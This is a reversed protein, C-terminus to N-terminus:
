PEKPPYPVAGEIGLMQGITVFEFGRARYGKIIAPLAAATTDPFTHMLVISGRGGGLAVRRVTATSAGQWDRTDINWLIISEIGVASAAVETTADWLEYPPRMVPLEEIGLGALIGQANALERRQPEYCQGALEPHGYTHNAIPFRAQAIAKWVDPFREVSKGTPFFTANVKYKQLIRLIRKTNEPDTGDDFTLAVAKKRIDGHSVVRAAELNEPPRCPTPTGVAPTTSPVPGISAAPSPPNTAGTPGPASTAGGVAATTPLTTPNTLDSLTRGIAPAFSALVTAGGIAIVAVVLLALRSRRRTSRGGVYYERQRRFM